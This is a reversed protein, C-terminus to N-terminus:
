YRLSRTDRMARGIPHMTTLPIPTRRGHSPIPKQRDSSEVVSSSEGASLKVREDAIASYAEYVKEIQGLKEM